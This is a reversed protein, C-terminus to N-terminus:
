NYDAAYTALANATDLMPQQSVSILGADPRDLDQILLVVGAILLSMIYVPLRWRREAAGSAYGSFGIAVVSISYLAFFVINPVRNRLATLRTEQNDFTENLAQIYLGTPVVANDKAMVLKVKSWLTEQTNNSRVIAANMEAATPV